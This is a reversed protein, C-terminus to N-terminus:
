TSLVEIFDDMHRRFVEPRMLDLHHSEPIFAFADDTFGDGLCDNELHQMRVGAIMARKQKDDAFICRVKSTRESAQRFWQVFPSPEGPQVAFFPESIDQCQRVLASLDSSLKDVCNVVHGNIVIWEDVTDCGDAARRMLDVVANSDHPDLHSFMGTLVCTDKELNPDIALVGNFIKGTEDGAACRLAM